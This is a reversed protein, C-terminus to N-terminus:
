DAITKMLGNVQDYTVRIQTGLLAADRPATRESECMELAEFIALMAEALLDAVRESLPLSGFRGLEPRNGPLPRRLPLRQTPAAMRSRRTDHLYALAHRTQATARRVNM